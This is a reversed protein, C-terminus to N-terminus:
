THKYLFFDYYTPNLVVVIEPMCQLDQFIDRPCYLLVLRHSLINLLYQSTPGPSFITMPLVVHNQQYFISITSTLLYSQSFYIYYIAYVIYIKHIKYYISYICCISYIYQLYAYVIHIIYIAYVIHTHTHTHIYIYISTPRNLIFMHLSFNPQIKGNLVSVLAQSFM